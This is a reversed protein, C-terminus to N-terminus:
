LWDTLVFGVGLRNIRRNYDILSEGYGNFYQLYGRLKGKADLPFTWDFQIAGKNDQRLNNRMMIGFNNDKWQYRTQLEFYGLFDDIDPNDDGEPDTPSSKENEPIRWWPKFAVVWRDKELIWETYVRNWSRSNLGSRGNSQHEFGFSFAPIQWGSLRWDTAWAAFIEPQHNTERFPSSVDSNYAQWYSQGTYAFFLASNDGFPKEWFPTKFSIQFKIEVNDVEREDGDLDFSNKDPNNNFTFPLIYNPKHPLIAFRNQRTRYEQRLRKKVLESDKKVTGRDAKATKDDDVSSKSKNNDAFLDKSPKFFALNSSKECATKIEAVTVNDDATDLQKLLCQDYDEQPLEVASFASHSFILFSLCLLKNMFLKLIIYIYQASQVM